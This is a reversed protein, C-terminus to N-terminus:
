CECLEIIMLNNIKKKINLKIMLYNLLKLNVLNKLLFPYKNLSINKQNKTLKHLTQLTRIYRHGIEKLWHFKEDGIIEVYYRNKM